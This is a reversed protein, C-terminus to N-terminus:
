FHLGCGEVKETRRKVQSQRRRNGFGFRERRRRAGVHQRGDSDLRERRRRQKLECIRCHQRRESDRDGANDRWGVICVGLRGAAAARLGGSEQRLVACLRGRSSRRLALAM